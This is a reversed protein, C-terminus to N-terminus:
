ENNIEKLLDILIETEKEETEEHIEYFNDIGLDKMVKKAITRNKTKALHVIVNLMGKRLQCYMLQDYQKDTLIKM